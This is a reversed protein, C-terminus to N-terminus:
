LRKGRNFQLYKEHDDRCDADCYIKGAPLVEGCNYCVGTPQFTPKKNQLAAALHVESEAAALDGFDRM